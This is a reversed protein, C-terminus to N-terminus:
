FIVDIVFALIWLCNKQLFIATQSKIVFIKLFYENDIM